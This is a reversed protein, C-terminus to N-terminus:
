AKPFLKHRPGYEVPVDNSLLALSAIGSAKRAAFPELLLGATRAELATGLDQVTVLVRAMVLALARVM